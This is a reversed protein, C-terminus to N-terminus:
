QGETSEPYLRRIKRKAEAIRESLQAANENDREAALQMYEKNAMDVTWNKENWCLLAAGDITLLYEYCFRRADQYDAFDYRRQRRALEEGALIYEMM